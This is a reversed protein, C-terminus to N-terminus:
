DPLRQTPTNAMKAAVAGTFAQYPLRSVRQPDKKLPCRRRGKARKGPQSVNINLIIRREDVQYKKLTALVGDLASNDKLDVKIGRGSAAVIRALRRVAHWQDSLLRARNGTVPKGDLFPAYRRLPGEPRVDCEFWNCDSELAKKLEDFTNTYHAHRRQRHRWRTAM